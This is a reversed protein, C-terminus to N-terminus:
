WGGETWLSTDPHSVVVYYFEDPHLHTLTNGETFGSYFAHWTGDNEDFWLVQFWGDAPGDYQVDALAVTRTLFDRGRIPYPAILAVHSWGFLWSEDDRITLVAQHPTGLTANIANSLELNITENGEAIDDNTIPVTFTESTDEPAFTLTGTVPTYDEGETATGGLISAYEVTVPNLTAQSLIITIIAEGGEEAVTYTASEFMVQPMEDTTFSLEEGYAPLDGVAKARFYYTTAPTLGTITANFTGAATMTQPPTEQDLDGSTTGWEFSVLVSAATGLHTLNGNLTATNATVETAESTEVTPPTPPPLEAMTTFSWSHAVAMPNGALDMAGTGITVTYTTNYALNEDPNFTMTNDLWSFVGSVDPSISFAGEASGTDMAESFTVEINTDILVETDDAEPSTAVVTPPIIDDVEVTLTFTVERVVQGASTGTITIEHEGVTADA